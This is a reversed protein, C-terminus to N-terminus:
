NAAKPLKHDPVLKLRINEGLLIRRQWEDISNTYVPEGKNPNMALKVMAAAIDGLEAHFDNM